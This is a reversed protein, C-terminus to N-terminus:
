ALPTFGHLFKLNVSVGPALFQSVYVRQLQEMGFWNVRVLNIM